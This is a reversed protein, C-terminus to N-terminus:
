REAPDMLLLPDVLQGQASVGWHLHAATVRGTAGVRGLIEGRRLRQGVSVGISSLHYYMSVLGDGHDVYVCNGAFYHEGTLIVVGDACVSVPAGAKAGLDLGTHPNKPEGNFFRRLGFDSTVPGAVPRSLPLPWRPSPTVRELAKRTAAQEGRIRALKEPSMENFERAVELHQEPYDRRERTIDHTAREAVGRRWATVTLTHVDGDLRERMGMGLVARAELGGPGPLLAPRVSEGLWDVRLSDTGTDAAVTLVFATGEDVSDPCDLVLEGALASAPSPGFFLLLALPVFRPRM